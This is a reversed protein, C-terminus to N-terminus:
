IKDLDTLNYKNNKLDTVLTKLTENDIDDIQTNNELGKGTYLFYALDGCIEPITREDHHDGQSLGVIECTNLKILLKEDKKPLLIYEIMFIGKFLGYSDLEILGKAVQNIINKIDSETFHEGELIVDFLNYEPFYINVFLKLM